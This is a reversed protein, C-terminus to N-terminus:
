FSGQLHVSGPALQLAATAPAKPATLWLTVGAALGVGGIIMAVTSVNGASHAANGASVGRPDTCRSGDCYKEAEDHDSKSKLGFISGVVVGVVGVGGATLAVIRQTGLGGAPRASEAAAVPAPEANVAVPAVGGAPALAPVTAAFTGGPGKVVVVSQWSERGPASAAVRHEGADAPIPVGWQATGVREGDRTIELGSVAKADASVDIVLESLTPRLTAARARAEKERQTNGSAAAAAAAELYKNWASALRETQEYCRALNLLTGSGPDLRQSEEFKPCAESAKGEKLLRKAQDFLAQAAASDAPTAARARVPALALVLAAGFGALAFRVRLAPVSPKGRESEITM